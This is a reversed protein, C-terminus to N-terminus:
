PQEVGAYTREMIREAQQLMDLASRRWDEGGIRRHKCARRLYGLAKYLPVRPAVEAAAQERYGAMFAETAAAARADLRTELYMVFNGVDLAPDGLAFLDWDILWVRGDGWFLQRLHFDRHLPAPVGAWAGGLAEFGRLLAEIRDRCEPLAQALELPHPRMLERVHDEVGKVEGLGLPLRHLLALAEGVLRLYRAFDPGRALEAFGAGEVRQQLLCRRPADYGLAEPVSLLAPAAVTDLARRVARMVEFTRAGTADGYSKGVLARVGEAGGPLLLYEAVLREGSGEELIRGRCEAFREGRSRAFEAAAAAGQELCLANM